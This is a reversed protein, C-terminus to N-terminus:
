FTPNRKAAALILGLIDLLTSKGCGSKGVIVVFEGPFVDFEPVVLQFQYDSSRRVKYLSRIRVIPRSNVGGADAEAGPAGNETVGQTGQVLGPVSRSQM